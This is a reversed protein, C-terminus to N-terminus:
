AVQAALDAVSAAAPIAPAAARDLAPQVSLVAGTLATVALALALAIGPLGHLRRLM